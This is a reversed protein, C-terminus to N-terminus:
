RVGLRQVWAVEALEDGGRLDGEGGEALERPRARERTLTPNRVERDGPSACTLSEGRM